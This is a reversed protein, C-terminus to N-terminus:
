VLVPEYLTSNGPRRWAISVCLKSENDILGKYAFIPPNKISIWVNEDM